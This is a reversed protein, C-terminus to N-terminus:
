DLNVLVAFLLKKLLYALIMLSLSNLIIEQLLGLQTELKSPTPQMSVSLIVQPLFKLRFLRLTRNWKLKFEM